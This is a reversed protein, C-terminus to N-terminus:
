AGEISRGPGPDIAWRDQLRGTGLIGQSKLKKRTLKRSIIGKKRETLRKEQLCISIIVCGRGRRKSFFHPKRKRFGFALLCGM